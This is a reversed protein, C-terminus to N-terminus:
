GAAPDAAWAKEERTEGMHMRSIEELSKRKTERGVLLMVGVAVCFVLFNIHLIWTMGVRAYLLGVVAPGVIGGCRGVSQVFGTGTARVKTPFNEAAYAYLSGWSAGVLINVVILAVCGLAPRGKCLLFLVYAMVGYGLFACTISIRRGWHDCTYGAIAQGSAGILTSLAMLKFGVALSWHLERTFLVPLWMELGFMAYNLSFMLLALMITVKAIDGKFLDRYRVETELSKSTQAAAVAEQHPVTVKGITRQELKEVLKVAETVKGKQALYRVSEPLGKWVFAFLAAPVIGLVFAWKWGYPIIITFGVVYALTTGFNAGAAFYSVFQGRRKSPIYEALYSAAVPLIGGLGLGEIFRMVIIQHFNKTLALSGTFLSYWVLAIAFVKLRGIMDAIFGFVIAGVLMGFFGASAILGIQADNIGWERVLKPLVNAVTRTDFSDFMLALFCMAMLYWHWGRVPLVDLRSALTPAEAGKM